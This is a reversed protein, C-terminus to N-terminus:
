NATRRSPSPTFRILIATLRGSSRVRPMDWLKVTRDLSASAALMSDPSFAVAQVMDGHDKFTVRVQGTAPDWLRVTCDRSASAVLRSNPSFAVALVWSRHGTLKM